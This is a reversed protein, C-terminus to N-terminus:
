FQGHCRTCVSFLSESEEGVDVDGGVISLVVGPAAVSEADEGSDVVSLLLALLMVLSLPLPLPLRLPAADAPM